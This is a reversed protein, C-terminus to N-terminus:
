EILVTQIDMVNTGTPGTTFLGGEAKFFTYSDNNTLYSEASMGMKAARELTAGDAFAGAADTPGDTGDTGASLLTIGETGAIAEAFALALEMNRGGRGGGRVAVTTEGGAILCIKRGQNGALTRKAERAKGALWRGADAAEGTLEATLIETECGAERSKAAAVGLAIRSNGIIINKVKAFVTDGAKPTEPLERRVGKELTETVARPIRGRLKYRDIVALADGYTTEDPATPGSAIVDLPDGIVDSLILSLVEAPYAIEALRGGKVRSVHKRVTNLERIDAGATLLAQTLERKEQLTVPPLPAALLASGGGSVLCLVLTREDAEQLARVIEVTANLGNEDPVPHAAEFCAIAGPLAETGFHGYKTVIKGGTAIDFSTDAVAKAMPYAAKGFGVVLLRNFNGRRRTEGIRGLENKVLTYPDVAKIVAQFIDALLRRNEEPITRDM